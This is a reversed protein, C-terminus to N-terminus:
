KRQADNKTRGRRFRLSGDVRIVRNPALRPWNRPTHLDQNAEHMESGVIGQKGKREGSLVGYLVSEGSRDHMKWLGAAAAFSVEPASDELASKLDPVFIEAKSAGMAAVAALRVYRDPDRGGDHLWKQAQEFDSLTGIATISDIRTQRAQTRSDSLASKLMAWAAKTQSEVSPNAAKASNEVPADPEEGNVTTTDAPAPQAPPAAQQQTQARSVPSILCSCCILVM